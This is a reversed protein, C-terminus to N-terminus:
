LNSVGVWIPFKNESCEKLLNDISDFRDKKTRDSTLLIM